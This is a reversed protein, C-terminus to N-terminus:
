ITKVAPEVLGAGLLCCLRGSVEELTRQAVVLFDELRFHFFEPYTPLGKIAGSERQKM